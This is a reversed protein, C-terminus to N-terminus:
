SKRTPRPPKKRKNLTKGKRKTGKKATKVKVKKKSTTKEKTKRQKSTKGPKSDKKKGKEKRKGSKKSKKIKQREKSYEKLESELCTIEEELKHIYKENSDQTVLEGCEPCHFEFDMARDFNLRACKSSCLFFLEKKEEELRQKLKELFEKKQKYYNFRISEPLLTWYYVYWGKQKDKKRTFGVLNHNYLIYLMRRIVKIDKRTKSALVFESINERGYLHKLLPLGEEGLIGTIIKEIKKRTLRIM